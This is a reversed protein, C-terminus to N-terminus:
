TQMEDLVIKLMLDPRHPKSGFGASSAFLDTLDLRDVAEDIARALHDAPLDDDIALWEPSQRDWPPVAFRDRDPDDRPSPPGITISLDMPGSPLGSRRHDRARPPLIM